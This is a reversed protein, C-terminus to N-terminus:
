LSSPPSRPFVTFCSVAFILSIVPPLFSRLSRYFASICVSAAQLSYGCIAIIGCIACEGGAEKEAHHHAFPVTLNVLVLFIGVLILSVNLRKM